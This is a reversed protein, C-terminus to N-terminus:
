IIRLKERQAHMSFEMDAKYTAYYKELLANKLLPIDKEFIDRLFWAPHPTNEILWFVFGDESLGLMVEEDQQVFDHISYSM